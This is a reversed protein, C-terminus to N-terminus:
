APATLKWVWRPTTGCFARASQLFFDDDEADEPAGVGKSAEDAAAVLKMLAQLLPPNRGVRWLQQTFSGCLLQWEDSLGTVILESFPRNQLATRWDAGL